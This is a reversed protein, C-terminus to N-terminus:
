KFRFPLGLRAASRNADALSKRLEAAFYTSGPHDGEVVVVGLEECIDLPMMSFYRYAQGQAGTDVPFWDAQSWDVPSALWAQVIERAQERPGSDGAKIWAKWGEDENELDKALRLLRKRTASGVKNAQRRISRAIPPIAEEICAQVHRLLPPCSDIEWVPDHGDLHDFVDGWTEPEPVSPDVITDDSVKFIWPDKLLDEWADDIEGSTAAAVPQPLRLTAGFSLLGALFSRRDIRLDAM